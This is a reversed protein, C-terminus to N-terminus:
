KPKRRVRMAYKSPSIGMQEKFCRSFYYINAYGTMEAVEGVSYRCTDLLERANKIRLSQIYKSPSTGFRKSFLQKYYSYSIGALKPPVSYDFNPDSWNDGIYKLAPELTKYKATPLYRESVKIRLAAIIEYFVSMAREYYCEDKASWIGYMKEFLKELKDNGSLDLSVLEDALKSEASFYIDICEGPLIREVKNPYYKGNERPLFRVTGPKEQIQKGAYSVVAEGSIKFILENMGNGISSYDSLPKKNEGYYVVSEIKKIVTREDTFINQLINVERTSNYHIHASKDLKIQTM